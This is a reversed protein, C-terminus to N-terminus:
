PRPVGQSGVGSTPRCRGSTTTFSDLIREVTRALTPKTTNPRVLGVMFVRRKARFQLVKAKPPSWDEDGTRFMNLHFHTPRPQYSDLHRRDLYPPLYEVVRLDVRPDGKPKLDFCLAPDPVYSDNHTTLRWAEPYRISVGESKGAFSRSTASESAACASCLLALLVAAATTAIASPQGM